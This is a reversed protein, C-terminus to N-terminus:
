LPPPAPPSKERHTLTYLQYHLTYGIGYVICYQLRAFCLPGPPQHEVVEHVDNSRLAEDRTENSRTDYRAWGWAGPGLLGWGQAYVPAVAVCQGCVCHSQRAPRAPAAPAAVRGAGGLEALPLPECRGACMARESATPRPVARVASGPGHPRRVVFTFLM